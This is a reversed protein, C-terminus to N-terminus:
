WRSIQLASLSSFKLENAPVLSSSTWQCLIARDTSHGRCLTMFLYQIKHWSESTRHVLKRWLRDYDPQAICSTICKIDYILQGIHFQVKHWLDVPLHSINFRTCNISERILFIADRTMCKNVYHFITRLKVRILSITTQKWTFYICM